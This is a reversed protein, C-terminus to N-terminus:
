KFRNLKENTDKYCNHFIELLNGKVMISDFIRKDSFGRISQMYKRERLTSPLTTVLWVFAVPLSIIPYINGNILNICARAILLMIGQPLYWILNALEYNKILMRLVRISAMEQQIKTVSKKRISWPKVTVHYTISTPVSIIRNGSVWIRWGLEIDDIRDMEEDFGRLKQLVSKRVFTGVAGMSVEQSQVKYEFEKEAFGVASVWGVQPILKLGVAQLLEPHDIDRVKGSVGGITSDSELIKIAEIMWNHDFKMDTEALAIYKGKTVEIARNRSSTLGRKQLTNIIKIRPEHLEIQALYEKSGDTSGDDVIIVEFNPYNTSLLSKLFDEIYERTNYNPIIVSVLPSTSETIAM